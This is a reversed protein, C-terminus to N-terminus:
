NKLWDLSDELIYKINNEKCYKEAYSDRAVTIKINDCGDFAYKEISNVSAPINIKKMNKCGNFALEGISQLGDPIKIETLNSCGDFASDGISAIGDPIEYKSEKSACFYSVLRKEPKYILANDIFTLTPHDASININLLNECGSFPNDGIKEVSDPITIETLNKCYNFARYGISQVSDPITIETLNRCFSFASNGISQVSDPIKIETLNTCVSFAMNGILQVSDPITIETLNKCDTFAWDGISKIGDPIEYKSEESASLYSIIKKEPKYFLANDMFALTPHDASININLLNGCGVFPNGDIKEVNNPINIKELNKCRSFASDGISKVSDPITIETLNSCGYFACDGISEIGYPIEYKSEKSASLYSVMKKEPKYILANDIFALTPNNASININLLNECGNFPNVGINEVSDPITIKTLNEWGYFAEDGIDTVRIGDLKEPVIVEEDIGYYRKICATGDNLIYYEYDGSKKVEPKEEARSESIPAILLVIALVLAIICFKKAKM